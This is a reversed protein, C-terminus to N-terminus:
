PSPKWEVKGPGGRTAWIRDVVLERDPETASISLSYAIEGAVPPEDHFIGDRKRRFKSLPITVTRWQGPQPPWFPVENFNHLAWTPKMADAGRTSIFVNLWDPHQMKITFHLHSDEHIEFMGELWENRSGIVYVVPNSEPDRMSQIAGASGAPLGTTVHSGTWGKPIGREFDVEWEDRPGSSERVTLNAEGNTVVGQGQVVEVSRGDSVRTLRVRGETVNLETHETTTAIAFQTGLVEIKAGPTALQMPRDKPQPSVQASVIGYHLLLSKREDSLCSVASDNVLVLRTGDEFEMIASAGAGRTNIRAGATVDTGATAVSTRGDADDISVNGSVATLKLTEQVPSHNRLMVFAAAIV